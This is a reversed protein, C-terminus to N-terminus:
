ENLSGLGTGAAAVSSTVAHRGVTDRSGRCQYEQLLLILGIAPLTAAKGGFVVGTVSSLISLAILLFSISLGAPHQKFSAYADFLMFGMLSLTLLAGLIGLEFYAHLVANHAHPPRYSGWVFDFRENLYTAYGAGLWPNQADAAVMTREWVHTRGTLTADQTGRSLSSLLDASFYVALMLGILAVMAFLVRRLGTGRSLVLWVALLLTYVLLSRTQTSLLTATFVVLAALLIGHPLRIYAAVRHSTFSAVTILLGAASIYGLRFEHQMVGSLRQLGGGVEWAYGPLAFAIVWSVICVSLLAWFVYRAGTSAPARSQPMSFILVAFLIASHLISEVPNVSWLASVMSWGAVLIWAVITRIPLPQMIGRPWKWTVTTASLVLLAGAMPLALRYGAVRGLDMEMALFAVITILLDLRITPNIRVDLNEKM